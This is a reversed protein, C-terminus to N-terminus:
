DEHAELLLPGPAEHLVLVGRCDHVVRLPFLHLPLLHPLLLHQYLGFSVTNFCFVRQRFLSKWAPPSGDDDRLARALGVAAAARASERGRCGQHPIRSTRSRLARVQELADLTTQYLAQAAERVEQPVVAEKTTVVARAPAVQAM